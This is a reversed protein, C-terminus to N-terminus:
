PATAKATEPIQVDVCSAPGPSWFLERWYPVSPDNFHGHQYPVDDKGCGKGSRYGFARVHTRDRVDSPIVFASHVTNEYKGSMLDLRTETHGFYADIWALLSGNPALGLFRTERQDAWPHLTLNYFRRTTDARLYPFVSSRVENVSTAAAMFVINDIPLTDRHRLIETSVIAGMSHGVLTIRYAPNSKTFRTLTDLLVALAGDPPVWQAVRRSEAQPDGEPRLMLSTRRHMTNWAPTGLGDILGLAISKPPLWGLLRWIRV